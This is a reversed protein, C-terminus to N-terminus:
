RRLKDPREGPARAFLCKLYAGEAFRVPHDLPHGTRALEKLPRRVQSAAYHVAAFFEKDSVQGSCSSIMLTGGPRLVGLGLRTLRAYASLARPM